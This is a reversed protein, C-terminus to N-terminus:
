INKDLKFGGENPTWIYIFDKINPAIKESATYPNCYLYAIESATLAKDVFIINDSYMIVKGWDDDSEVSEQEKKESKLMFIAAIGGLVAQFLSRRTM